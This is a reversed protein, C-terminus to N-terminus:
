TARLPNVVDCYPCIVFKNFHLERTFRKKDQRNWGYSKAICEVEYDTIDEPYSERLVDFIDGADLDANCDRCNM